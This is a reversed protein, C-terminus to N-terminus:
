SATAPEARLPLVRWTRTHPPAPRCLLSIDDGCRGSPSRDCSNIDTGDTGPPWIGMVPFGLVCTWTAWRTDRQNEKVQRGTRPDSYLIEYAQDNSMIVSSDAAWDIHTVTSSHGTCKCRLRYGPKVDYIYILQDHSGAALFRGCPSYKLEDISENSDKCWAVQTVNPHFEMVQLGGGSLGVALHQGDPSFAGSRACEGKMGLQVVRLPKHTAASMVVVTDAESLTAFVHPFQPNMALGNLAGSAGQVLVEPMDDVEWLNCAGSGAVFVQSGPFCDLARLAPLTVVGMQEPRLLPIRQLPAGLDGKSVDWKIVYGDAGGSLLTREDQLVLCRVGSYMPPGDPRNILKGTAHGPTERLLKNGRWSAIAGSQNGTLVVGSSLFVASLPTFTKAGAFSGSKVECTVGGAHDEGLAWFKVHNQGWTAFRQHEFASFVIGYTAPPTGNYTRREMLVKRRSWDWLYLTHNNDTCVAALRKGDPTFALAGVGRNGDGQQLTALSECTGTDWVIVAPDKGVQGTAVTRRDPHIAMSVIDDDHELFFRQRHARKDYVIGVAAAYYAVEGSSTYFVNPATAQMGDYGYVFELTLRVDPTTASREAVRPDWDSPPWVGKKCEPYKIKGTHTAPVGAKYAGRQVAGDNQMMMARPAGALLAECFAQVPLRGGSAGHKEFLALVQEQSMAVGLDKWVAGFQLPNVTDSHTIMPGRKQMAKGFANLLLSREKVHLPSLRKVQERMAHEIKVIVPALEKLNLPRASPVRRRPPPPAIGGVNPVAPRASAARGKPGLEVPHYVGPRIEVRGYKPEQPGQM